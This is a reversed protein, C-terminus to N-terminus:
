ANWTEKIVCNNYTRPREKKLEAMFELAQQLNDYEAVIVPDQIRPTYIVQYNM